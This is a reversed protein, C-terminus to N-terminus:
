SSVSEDKKLNWRATQIDVTPGVYVQSPHGTALRGVEDLFQSQIRGFAYLDTWVLQDVIKVVGAYGPSEDDEENNEADFDAAIALVYGRYDANHGTRTEADGYTDNFAKICAEDVALCVRTELGPLIESSAAFSQFHQRVGEIDSDAIKLDDGDLWQLQAKSKIAKSGAVGKWADMGAELRRLFSAWDQDNITHSIRYAVYGFRELDPHDLLKQVWPEPIRKSLLGVAPQLEVHVTEKEFFLQTPDIFDPMLPESRMKENAASRVSLRNTHRADMEDRREKEAEVYIETLQEPTYKEVGTNCPRTDATALGKFGDIPVRVQQDATIGIDILEQFVALGEQDVLFTRETPDLTVGSLFRQLIRLKWIDRLSKLHHFIWDRAQQEMFDFTAKIFEEFSALIQLPTEGSEKRIENIANGFLSLEAHVSNYTDRLNAQIKPLRLYSFVGVALRIYDIAERINEEADLKKISWWSESMLAMGDWMKSKVHNLVMETIVLRSPDEYSGMLIMIRDNPTRELDRYSGTAWESYPQNWLHLMQMPFLPLSTKKGGPLIGTVMSEVFHPITQLELLLDTVYQNGDQPVDNHLQIDLM